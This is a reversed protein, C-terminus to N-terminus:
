HSGFIVLVVVGQRLGLESKELGFQDLFAAGPFGNFLLLQRSQFPHPLEVVLAEM